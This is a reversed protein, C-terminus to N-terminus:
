GQYGHARLFWTHRDVERQVEILLDIGRPAIRGEASASARASCRRTSPSANKLLGATM